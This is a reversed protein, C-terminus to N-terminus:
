FYHSMVSVNNKPQSPYGGDCVAALDDDKMDYLEKAVTTNQQLFFDRGRSCAGL